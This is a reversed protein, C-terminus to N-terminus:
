KESNDKDPTVANNESDTKASTENVSGANDKDATENGATEKDSNDKGSTEAKLEALLEAKMKEREQALYDAKEKELYASREEETMASIDGSELAKERKTNRVVVILNVAFYVVILFSPLVVCVFFGTSSSFWGIVKGIKGWNSKYVGIISSESVVYNDVDDNNDGKTTCRWEGDMKYPQVYIRHTNIQRVGDKYFYYSIVVDYGDEGPETKSLEDLMDSIEESSLVDVVILDGEEFSDERDSKMSNSEVVLYARGFLNTYGKSKSAIINIALLFIIVILIVIVINVIVNLVKKAKESM